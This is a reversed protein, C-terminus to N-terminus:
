SSCGYEINKESAYKAASEEVMKRVLKQDGLVWDSISVWKEGDWQQFRVVGPGEHNECSVTIPPVMGGFGLEDLKAQTLSLNEIGWRVQLGSMPTNGYKAQANRVAEVTLMAQAVGRNWLVTGVYSEDGGKGKQYVHKLIEQVVEFNKGSLNMNAAIYGTSASPGAALTDVEAGSWWNGIMKERPFGVKKATKISTGSMVGWGWLIVWDPQEKKIRMWQSQQENGPHPVPIMVLDFGFNDAEVKLIEHPEKGYASDHYLLVIKKGSLSKEGGEKTEIFRVIASAQSWYNTMLPFVWPFVRGDSADTRGYGLTILPIQDVPAKDILGYTIGTSMPHIATPGLPNRTKLREYCELGKATNYETECEEWSLRVGNLGGDRENLLTLYDIYGTAIPAGSPGYPGVRYGAIGFFQSPAAEEVESTLDTSSKDGCGNLVLTIISIFFVKKLKM